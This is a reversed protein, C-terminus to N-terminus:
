KRRSTGRRVSMHPGRIHLSANAEGHGRVWTLLCGESAEDDPDKQGWGFPLAQPTRRKLRQEETQQGRWSGKFMQKRHGSCDGYLQSVGKHTAGMEVVLPSGLGSSDQVIAEAVSSRSRLNDSLLKAHEERAAEQTVQSGELLAAKMLLVVRSLSAHRASEDFVASATLNSFVSSLYVVKQVPRSGRRVAFVIGDVTPTALVTASVITMDLIRTALLLSPLVGFVPFHKGSMWSSMSTRLGLCLTHRYWLIASRVMREACEMSQLCGRAESFLDRANNGAVVFAPHYACLIYAPAEPFLAFANLLDVGSYPYLIPLRQPLRTRSWEAMAAHRATINGRYCCAQQNNVADCTSSGIHMVRAELDRAELLLPLEPRQTWQVLLAVDSANLQQRHSGAFKHRHEATPRKNGGPPQWINSRTKQEESLSIMREYIALRQAAFTPNEREKASPANAELKRLQSILCNMTSCASHQSTLMKKLSHTIVHDCDHTHQLHSGALLSICSVFLCARRVAAIPAPRGAMETVTGSGTSYPVPVPPVRFMFFLHMHM